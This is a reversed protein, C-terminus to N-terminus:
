FAKDLYPYILSRFTLGTKLVVYIFGRFM